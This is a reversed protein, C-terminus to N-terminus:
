SPKTKLIYGGLHITMIHDEYILQTNNEEKHKHLTNIM